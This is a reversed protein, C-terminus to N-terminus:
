SRWREWPWKRDAWIVLAVQAVVFAVLVLGWARAQVAEVIVWGALVTVLLLGLWSWWADRARTLLHWAMVRGLVRGARLAVALLVRRALATM